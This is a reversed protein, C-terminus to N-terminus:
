AARLCASRSCPSAARRGSTRTEPGAPSRPAAARARSGRRTSSTRRRGRCSCAPCSPGTSRERLDVVVLDFLGLAHVDADRGRGLGVGFPQRQQLLQAHREPLYRPLSDLCSCSLVVRIAVVALIALSSVPWPLGRFRGLQSAPVAVAALAAPPRAAVDALEIQAPDAEPLSASAPSIGPTILALQYLGAFPSSSSSSMPDRDGVHQRSDAVRELRAVRLHVHGGRPQLHLDGPDQLFLAVDDVVLQGLFARLLGDPNVQLVRRAVLRDDRVDLAHRPGAAAHVDPLLSIGRTSPPRPM